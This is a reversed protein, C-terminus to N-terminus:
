SNDGLGKTYVMDFRQRMLRNLSTANCTVNFKQNISQNISQNVSQNIICMQPHQKKSHCHYLLATVRYLKLPFFVMKMAM